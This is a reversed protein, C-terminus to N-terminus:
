MLFADDESGIEMGYGNEIVVSSVMGSENRSIKAAKYPFTGSRM